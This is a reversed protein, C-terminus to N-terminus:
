VARVGLELSLFFVGLVGNFEDRRSSCFRTLLVKMQAVKNKENKIRSSCIGNGTVGRSWARIGTTPTRGRDGYAHLECLSKLFFETNYINVILICICSFVQGTLWLGADWVSLRVGGSVGHELLPEPAWGGGSPPLVRM